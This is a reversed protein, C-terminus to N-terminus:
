LLVTKVCLPELKLSVMDSFAGNESLKTNLADFEIEKTIPLVFDARTAVASTTALRSEKRFAAFQKILGSFFSLM